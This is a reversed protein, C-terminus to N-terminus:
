KSEVCSSQSFFQKKKQEADVSPKKQFKMYKIEADTGPGNIVAAVVLEDGVGELGGGTIDLLRVLWELPEVNVTLQQLFIIYIFYHVTSTVDLCYIIYIEFWSRKIHMRYQMFSSEHIIDAAM